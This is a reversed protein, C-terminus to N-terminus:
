LVCDPYNIIPCKAPPEETPFLEGLAAKAFSVRRNWLDRLRELNGEKLAGEWGEIQAADFCQHAYLASNRLAEYDEWALYDGNPSEDMEGIREGCIVKESIDYRKPETKMNM